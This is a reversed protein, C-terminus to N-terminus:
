NKNFTIFALEKYITADSEFKNMVSNFNDTSQKFKSDYWQSMYNNYTGIEDKVLDIYKNFDNFDIIKGSVIQAELEHSLDRLSEVISKEILSYNDM